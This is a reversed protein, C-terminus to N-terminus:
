LAMYSIHNYRKSASSRILAKTNVPSSSDFEILLRNVDLEEENDSSCAYCNKFIITMSYTALIRSDEKAHEDLSVVEEFIASDSERSWAFQRIPSIRTNELILDRAIILHKLMEEKGTIKARSIGQELLLLIGEPLSDSPYRYINWSDAFLALHDETTM